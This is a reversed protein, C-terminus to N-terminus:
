SLPNVHSYQKPFLVQILVRAEESRDWCDAFSAQLEDFSRYGFLLQLFTLDPFGAQYEQNSIPLMETVDLLRGSGFTFELCTRYFTIQLKGSYGVVLESEALRKELVPRILRMFGALDPVRVFFAYPDRVTPIKESFVQYAPHSSGLWFGYGTIPKNDLAAKEAGTKWLYRALAPTVSMWSVGPKLEFEKAVLGINWNFWPHTLYGIPEGKDTEIVCIETREVNKPSMGQLAYRWCPEDWQCSVLSRRNAHESVQMIFPLDNEVAPRILTTEVEGEKLRPLQSESGFRGGGLDVAMEYGFQRYYFPIGTIAQVMQNRERSWRHVEGFQQRVLGRRRYDVLTGVLEPRGVRFPIGAYTWTQSILNMSSVIQGTRTDEVITFDGSEFTPHPKRLMDHTWAGIREDPKDPGFDSHIRSNFDALAEADAPTSRRLTLGEGLDRLLLHSDTKTNM